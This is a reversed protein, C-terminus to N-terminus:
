KLNRLESEASAFHELKENDQVLQENLEKDNQCWELRWLRLKLGNVHQNKAHLQQNGHHRNRDKEEETTEQTDVSYQQFSQGKEELKRKM